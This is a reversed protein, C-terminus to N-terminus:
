QVKYIPIVSNENFCMAATITQMLQVYLILKKLEIEDPPGSYSMYPKGNVYLVVYPTYTLPTKTKLTLATHEAYKVIDYKAFTCGITNNMTDLLPIFPKSYECDPNYFLILSLGKLITEIVDGRPTNIIKFDNPTLEFVEQSQETM